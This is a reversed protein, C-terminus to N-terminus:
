REDVGENELASLLGGITGPQYRADHAFTELTPITYADLQGHLWYALGEERSVGAAANLLEIAEELKSQAALLLDTVNYMADERADDEDPEQSSSPTFGCRECYKTGSDDHNWLGEHDCRERLHEDWTKTTEIENRTM